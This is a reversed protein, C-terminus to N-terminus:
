RFIENCIWGRTYAHYQRRGYEPAPFNLPEQEIVSGIENSLIGDRQTNSISLTKTFASLGSEHRM